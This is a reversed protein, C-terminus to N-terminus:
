LFIHFHLDQSNYTTVQNLIGSISYVMYYLVSEKTCLSIELNMPNNVQQKTICQTPMTLYLNYGYSIRRSKKLYSIIANHSKRTMHLLVYPCVFSFFKSHLRTKYSIYNGLICKQLRNKSVNEPLLTSLRLLDQMCLTVARTLDSTFAYEEM